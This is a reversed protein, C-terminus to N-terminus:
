THHRYVGVGYNIVSIVPAQIHWMWSAEDHIDNYKKLNDIEKARTPVAVAILVCKRTEKDVILIDPTISLLVTQVNFDRMINVQDNETVNDPKQRYQKEEVDDRKKKCLCCNLHSVTIRKTFINWKKSVKGRLQWM